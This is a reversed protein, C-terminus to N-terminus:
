LGCPFQWFLSYNTIKTIVPVLAMTYNPSLCHRASPPAPHSSGPCGAQPCGIVWSEKFLTPLHKIIHFFLLFFTIVSPMWSIPFMGFINLLQYIVLFITLIKKFRIYFLNRLNCCFIKIQPCGLVKNAGPMWSGRCAVPFLHLYISDFERLKSALSNLLLSV